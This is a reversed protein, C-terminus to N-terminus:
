EVEKFYKVGDHDVTKSVVNYSRENFEKETIEIYEM